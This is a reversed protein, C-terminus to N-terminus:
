VLITYLLSDSYGVWELILHEHVIGSDTEICWNKKDLKSPLCWLGSGVSFMTVTRPFQKYKWNKSIKIQLINKM